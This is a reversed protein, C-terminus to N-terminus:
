RAPPTARRALHRLHGAWVALCLAVAGPVLIGAGVPDDSVVSFLGADDPVEAAPAGLEVDPYDLEPEFGTDVEASPLTPAVPPPQAVVAGSGAPGVRPVASGAAGAGAAGAPSTSGSTATTSPTGLDVEAAAPESALTEGRAGSRLAVVEYRYRGPAIGATAGDVFTTEGVWLADALTTAPGDGLARRVRYGAADPPPTGAWAPPAQWRVTVQDGNADVAVAAPSPAALSLVVGDAELPASTSQPTVAGPVDATATVEVDYTGNCLPDVRFTASATDTPPNGEPATPSPEPAPAPAPESGTVPEAYTYADCGAGHPVIRLEIETIESGPPGTFEFHVGVVLNSGTAEYGDGIAPDLFRGRWGIGLNETGSEQAGAWPVVTVGALVALAGAAVLRAAPTM